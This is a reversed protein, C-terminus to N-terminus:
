TKVPPTSNDVGNRTQLYNGFSQSLFAYLATMGAGVATGVIIVWQVKSPEAAENSWQALSGVLASVTAAGTVVIGKTIIVATTLKM